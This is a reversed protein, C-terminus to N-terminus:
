RFLRDFISRIEARASRVASQLDPESAVMNSRVLAEVSEKAHGSRPLTKRAAGTVLRIAHETSRLLKAGRSLITCDDPTLAGTECLVQLRQGINGGFRPPDPLRVLLSGAIFDVDYLGGPGTRFNEPDDSRELRERVHRLAPVFECSRAFRQFLKGAASFVQERVDAPGHLSRLKTWTLAEWPEAEAEFYRLLEAATIVLSGASGHPRLRADVPFLTGDKTYASLAQMLAAASAAACEADLAEDRVFVLDADSLIDFEDTGLRGLAFVALGAPWASLSIAAAITERAIATTEALSDYVCRKLLIDRAGSAFVRSRYRQRILSLKEATSQGLRDLFHVFQSGRNRDGSFEILKESDIRQRTGIEALTAIQQPHRVLLDTLYDSAAIVDLAADFVASSDRLAAYREPSTFTASLFRFLNARIHPAFEQRVKRYIEPADIALRQLIEHESAERGAPVMARLRFEEDHEARESVQQQHIVRDYIRHVATMHERLKSRLLDTSPIALLRPALGRALVLLREEDSPLSHVQQGHRLQLRHEVNRLFEYASTLEHFDRGSIHGKDHLKQLSFMTGGSRLWKEHGGYVRQLCQVLFEVDRIGGPDLKVDVSARDASTTRRRHSQIREGSLVATEVAAFNLQETYVLPQVRRIFERALKDDGAAYRLKILVQREWDAARTSYYQLAHSLGIAAEGENGQPRLRLDIRFPAGERTPRSLM